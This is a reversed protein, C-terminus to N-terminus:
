SRLEFKVSLYLPALGKVWKFTMIADRFNLRDEVPLCELPRLIPTVHDYKRLGSVIRALFNQVSQLKNINKTPINSWVSSFYYMRSFILANIIQILTREDLIHKVRNIERLDAICTSVVNTIQEDYSLRSDLLM